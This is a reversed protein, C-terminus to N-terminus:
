PEAPTPPLEGARIWHRILDSASKRARKALAKLEDLDGASIRITLRPLMPEPVSSHRGKAMMDAMNDDHTGIFLHDPRVCRRVDCKHLVFLGEPVPGNVLEWSVRHAYHRKGSISIIGYKGATIGATWLWCDGSKDVKDWFRRAVDNNM